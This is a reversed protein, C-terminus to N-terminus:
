SIKQAHQVGCKQLGCISCTAVVPSGVWKATLFHFIRHWKNARYELLRRQNKFKAILARAEDWHVGNINAETQWAKLAPPFSDGKEFIQVFSNGLELHDATMGITSPEAKLSSLELDIQAIEAKNTETLEHFYDSKRDANDAAFSHESVLRSRTAELVQIAKTYM